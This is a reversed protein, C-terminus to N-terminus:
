RPMKTFKVSVGELAKLAPALLGAFRTFEDKFSELQAQLAAPVKNPEQNEKGRRAEAIAQAAAVRIELLHEILDLVPTLKTLEQPGLENAIRLKESEFAVKDLGSSSAPDSRALRPEGEPDILLASDKDERPSLASCRRKLYDWAPVEIAVPERANRLAEVEAASAPIARLDVVTLEERAAAPGEFDRVLKFLGGPVSESRWFIVTIPMAGDLHIKTWVARIKGGRWDLEEEGEGEPRCNPARLWGAIDYGLLSEIVSSAQFEEEAEGFDEQRRQYLLVDAREPKVSAPPAEQYELRVFGPAVERLTVTKTMEEAAQPSTMTSRYSVFTGPKFLSWHSYGYGAMGAAKPEPRDPSLQGDSTVRLLGAQAIMFTFPGLCRQYGAENRCSLVFMVVSRGLQAYAICEFNGYADGTFKRTLAEEGSRLTIPPLSAVALGPFKKRFKEEDDRMFDEVSRGPELRGFSVYIVEGATRWTSGQPYMVCHLGQSVGSQNDFIWGKPATILAGIGAGYPIGSGELQAQALAAPAAVLAILWLVVLATPRGPGRPM